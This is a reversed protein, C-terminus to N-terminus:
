TIKLLSKYYKILQVAGQDYASPLFEQIGSAQFLHGRNESEGHTQACAVPWLKQGLFRIKQMLPGQSM